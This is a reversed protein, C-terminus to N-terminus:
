ADELVVAGPVRFTVVPVAESSRMFRFERAADPVPVWVPILSGFARLQPFSCEESSSARTPLMLCARSLFLPASFDAGRKKDVNLFASHAVVTQTPISRM